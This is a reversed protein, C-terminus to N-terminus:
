QPYDPLLWFCYCSPKPLSHFTFHILHIRECSLRHSSINNCGGINRNVKLNSQPSRGSSNSTKRRSLCLSARLQKICAKSCSFHSAVYHLMCLHVIYICRLDVFPNCCNCIGDAVLADHMRIPKMAIDMSLQWGEKTKAQELVPQFVFIVKLDCEASHDVKQVSWRIM